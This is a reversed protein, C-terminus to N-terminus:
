QTREANLRTMAQVAVRMGIDQGIMELQREAATQTELWAAGAPSRLFGVVDRLHAESMAGAYVGAMRTAFEPAANRFEEALLEGLRAQEAVTLNLEPGMSAAMMPSMADFMGNLVEEIDMLTVVERALATRQDEQAAAQGGMLAMAFVAAAVLKRMSM